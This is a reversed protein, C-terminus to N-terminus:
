LGKSRIKQYLLKLARKRRTFIMNRSVGWRTALEDVSLLPFGGLGFLYKITYRDKAKPLHDIYELLKENRIKTEIEQEIDTDDPILDIVETENLDDVNTNLSLPKSNKRRNHYTIMKILEYKICVYYYTSSKIGKEESYNRIGNLLGDYGADIYDQYEDQTKWFIHLDKIVQYILKENDKILQEENSMMM